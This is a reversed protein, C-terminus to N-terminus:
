GAVTTVLTATGLRGASDSVLVRTTYTGAVPYTHSVTVGAGGASDGFNWAFSLGTGSSGTANFTCTLRSCTQAPVATPGAPATSTRGSALYHAKIQNASLPYDYIAVDDISGKFYRSIAGAWSGSINDGGIRWYGDFMQADTVAANRAALQGDVYLSMGAASVEGVLYHWNGDTVSASSHITDIQMPNVGFYVHGASDLYLHRDYNISLSHPEDGFGLIKGGTTTTRVWAEATFTRPGGVSTTTGTTGTSGNFTASTDSDGVGGASRLTVGGYLKLPNAGTLDAFTTGSTADMRWYDRPGDALVARPYATLGGSAPTTVAASSSTNTNGDPDAVSVRYSYATGAKVTSDLACVTPESWFPSPVTRRYVIAKDSRTFTYTLDLDDRDPRGAFCVQVSTPALARVTPVFPVAGARPGDKRPAVAPIGFRVLGQQAVGDVTPFEGGEVVYQSNASVTWAAQDAGSVTGTTLTPYWNVQTPSPNGAWDPYHIESNHPLTGTAAETFATSRYWATRPNTDPFTGVNACFHAHSVVYVYGNAEAAGYTDGHCDELWHFAGTVPDALFTGEMNGPTGFVYGTGIVWQKDASVSLSLIASNEGGDLIVNAAAWNVIAQTSTSLAVLGNNRPHGDVTLFHGSAIVKQNDPTVTLAYVTNDVTPAWPLLSGNATSLAALRIRTKGNVSGFRGGAYLTKGDPSVAIARVQNNFTPAFTTLLAGTATSYAAVHDRTVGNATTFDGAVYLTSADPSVAVALVQANLSPAFSTNLAGTAVDFSLLNKRATLHTGAAAGAPRANSFQGGAYAVGNAIATAWVIGDIQVTPLVDDTVLSASRQAVPAPNALARAAALLGLLLLASALVAAARSKAQSGTM